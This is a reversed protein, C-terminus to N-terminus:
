DEMAGRIRGPMRLYESIFPIWRSNYMAFEYLRKEDIKLRKVVEVFEKGTDNRFDFDFPRSRYLISCLSKIRDGTGCSSSLNWEGRVFKDKGMAKLIKLAREAGYYCPIAAVFKTYRGTGAGRTCECDIVLGTFMDYVERVTERIADFGSYVLYKEGPSYALSCLLSFTESSPLVDSVAFYLTNKQLLFDLIKAVFNWYIQLQFEKSNAVAFKIIKDTM